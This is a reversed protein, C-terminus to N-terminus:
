SRTQFRPCAYASDRFIRLSNGEYNQNVACYGIGGDGLISHTCGGCRNDGAAKKIAASGRALKKSFETDDDKARPM